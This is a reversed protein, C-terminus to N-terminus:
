NATVSAYDANSKHLFQLIVFTSIYAADNAIIHDSYAFAPHGVELMKRYSFKSEPNYYSHACDVRVLFLLINLDRWYLLVTQHNSLLPSKQWFIDIIIIVVVVVVVVVCLNMSFMKGLIKCGPQWEIISKAIFEAYQPPFGYIKLM